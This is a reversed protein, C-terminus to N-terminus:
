IKKKNVEQNKYILPKEENKYGKDEIESDMLSFINCSDFSFLIIVVVTIIIIKKVTLCKWPRRRIIYELYLKVTGYHVSAHLFYIFIM